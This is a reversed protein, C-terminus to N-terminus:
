PTTATGRLTAKALAIASLARALEKASANEVMAPARRPLAYLTFEYLHEGTGAPPCPGDYILDGFNSQIATAGAPLAGGKPLGSATAPLNVVIWHSWSSPLVSTDIFTLVFSKTGAPAGSWSLAPAVNKGGCRPYMQESAITAGNALDASKLQMTALAALMLILGM